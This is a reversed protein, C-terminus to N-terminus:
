TTQVSHVDRQCIDVLADGILVRACQVRDEAAEDSWGWGIYRFYSGFDHGPEVAAVPTKEGSKTVVFDAQANEENVRVLEVTLTQVPEGTTGTGTTGGTTTGGTTTGTGGPVTSVGGATGTVPTGTATGADATAGSSESEVYLAKFPNRGVSEESAVPVAVAAPPAAEEAQAAAPAKKVPLAFEDAADDGGGLLFFGAGALVLAGVVAGVLAVPKRGGEETEAVEPAAEPAGGFPFTSESM